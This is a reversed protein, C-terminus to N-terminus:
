RSAQHMQFTHDAMSIQRLIAPHRRAPPEATLSGRLGDDVSPQAVRDMAVTSLPGEFLARRGSRPRASAARGGVAHRGAQRWGAWAFFAM